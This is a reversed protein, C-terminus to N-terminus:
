NRPNKKGHWKRYYKWADRLHQRLAWKQFFALFGGSSYRVGDAAVAVEPLFVVTKDAEWARRCFDPDSMFLFFREDLGDLKEWLDRAVLWFSSQLWDVKQIQSLDLNRCEDYAVRKRLIPLRRLFTRRAIQNSLKPFARITMETAGDTDRIQRPALVGIEPNQGFFDVLNQLANEERCIIDPNVIALIEGSAKKVAENVGRPYGLNENNFILKIKPQSVLTAFKQKKADTAANVAVIIEFDFNTKQRLLAAINELARTSKAFDLIIISLKM